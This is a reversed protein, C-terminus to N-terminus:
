GPNAAPAPDDGPDAVADEIVDGGAARIVASVAEATRDVAAPDPSRVVVSVGIRGARVFPYSGIEVAGHAEQVAALGAAIAGETVYASLTRSRIPVGGRLQHRYGDVMAQLIRPVGPLVIVNDIRFGPARSVPNDILEAGEPVDAMKLRADNLDGPSYQQRLRRLAEPNRVLPRGFAAAVAAATIDDHTPGIGGTTLVYDFRSRCANVAAIITGADDPIIRAERVRVGVENLRSALFPLNQDVTRGSLLENGIILVCATIEPSAPTMAAPTM